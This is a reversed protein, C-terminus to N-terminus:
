SLAHRSLSWAFQRRYCFVLLDMDGYKCHSSGKRVGRRKIITPSVKRGQKILRKWLNRCSLIVTIELAVVFSCNLVRTNSSAMRGGLGWKARFWCSYDSSFVTGGKRTQRKYIRRPNPFTLFEIEQDEVATGRCALVWYFWLGACVVKSGGVSVTVLDGSFMWKRDKNRSQNLFVWGIGV